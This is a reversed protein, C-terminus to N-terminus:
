RGSGYDDLWLTGSSGPALHAEDIHFYVGRV